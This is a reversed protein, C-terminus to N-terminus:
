LYNTCTIVDIIGNKHEPYKTLLAQYEEERENQWYCRVEERVEEPLSSGPYISFIDFPKPPQKAMLEKELKNVRTKIAM